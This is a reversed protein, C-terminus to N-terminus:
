MESEHAPRNLIIKEVVSVVQCGDRRIGVAAAGDPSFGARLAGFCM